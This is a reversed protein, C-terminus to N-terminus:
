VHDGSEHQHRGAKICDLINNTISKWVARNQWDQATPEGPYITGDLCGNALATALIRAETNTSTFRVIVVPRVDTDITGQCVDIAGFKKEQPLPDVMRVVIEHSPGAGDIVASISRAALLYQRPITPMNGPWMMNLLWYVLTNDQEVCASTNVLIADGYIGNKLLVVPTTM